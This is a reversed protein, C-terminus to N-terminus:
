TAQAWPPPHAAADALRAEFPFDHLELRSRGAQLEQDTFLSQFWPLSAAFEVSRALEGMEWLKQFGYFTSRTDALLRRAAPVAGGSQTILSTFRSPNYGHAKLYQVDALVHQHFLNALDRGAPEAPRTAPAHTAPSTPTATSTDLIQRVTAILKALHDAGTDGFLDACQISTFTRGGGLDRDPIACDDFRVPILWPTQPPRQRLQDIGLLLEENQYSSAKRASADSFCALFALANDSIACRIVSRWDQGPWLDRTDRWVRVGAEELARQLRDVHTKDERVYSIFAHGRVAPGTPQSM